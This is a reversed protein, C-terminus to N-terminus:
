LLTKLERLNKEITKIIDEKKAENGISENHKKLRTELETRTGAIIIDNMSEKEESYKEIYNKLEIYLSEPIRASFVIKKDAKKNHGSKDPEPNNIAQNVWSEPNLNSKKITM